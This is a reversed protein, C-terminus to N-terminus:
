PSPKRPKGKPWGGHRKPTKRLREVETDPVGISNGVLQAGDLLGAHFMKRLAERSLGTKESAEALGVLKVDGM